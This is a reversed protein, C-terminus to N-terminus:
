LINRAFVHLLLSFVLLLAAARHLVLWYKNKSLKGWIRLGFLIMVLFWTVYGTHLRIVGLALYGHLFGTIALTGGIYPHIKSLFKLVANRKKGPKKRTWKRYRRLLFPLLSVTLLAAHFWGLYGSMTIM